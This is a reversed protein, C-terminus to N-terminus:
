RNAWLQICFLDIFLVDILNSIIVVGVEHFFFLSFRYFNISINFNLGKPPSLLNSQFNSHICTAFATLKTVHNFGMRPFYIGQLFNNMLIWITRIHTHYNSFPSEQIDNRKYKLGNIFMKNEIIDIQRMKGIVIAM